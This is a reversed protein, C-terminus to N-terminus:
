GEKLLRAVEMAVDEERWGYGLYLSVGWITRRLVHHFLCTM